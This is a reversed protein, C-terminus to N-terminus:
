RLVKFIASNGNRLILELSPHNEYMAIRANGSYDKWPWNETNPYCGKCTDFRERESIYLYKIDLERLIEEIKEYDWPHKLIENAKIITFVEPAFEKKRVQDIIIETVYIDQLAGNILNQARFGIFMESAKSLDNLVLDSSKANEYLWYQLNRENGGPFTDIYSNTKKFYKKDALVETRDELIQLGPFLLLVLLGLVAIKSFKSKVFKSFVRSPNISIQKTIFNFMLLNIAISLLFMLGVSRYSKHFFTYYLALDHSIPIFHVLSVMLVIISFPRYRKNFFLISASVIGFASSVWLPFLESSPDIPNRLLYRAHDYPISQKLGILELATFSWLPMSIFVAILIPFIIVKKKSDKLHYILFSIIGVLIPLVFYGSYSAGVAFICIAYYIFLKLKNGKEFYAILIMFSTLLVVIGVHASFNSATIQFMMIDGRYVTPVWYSVLFMISSLFLSKSFKYVLSSLMLPILFIIFGNIAEMSVAPLTGTFFSLGAAIAHSGQPYSVIRNPLWGPIDSIPLLSTTDPLVNNAVTLSIKSVHVRADWIGTPWGIADVYNISLVGAIILIILFFIMNNKSKFNQFNSFSIKKRKLYIALIGLEFIIYSLVIEFSIWIHSVLYIFTLSICFGFGLYWPIKVFFNEDKLFKSNELLVFGLPFSILILGLFVPITSQIPLNEDLRYDPFEKKAIINPNSISISEFNNQNLELKLSQITNLDGFIGTIGEIAKFDTPDFVINARRDQYIDYLQRLQPSGYNTEGNTDVLLLKMDYNTKSKIEFELGILKDELSIPEDFVCTLSLQDTQQGKFDTFVKLNDRYGIEGVSYNDEPLIIWECQTKQGYSEQIFLLSFIFFVLFILCFISKM